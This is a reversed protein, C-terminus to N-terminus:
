LATGPAAARWCLRCMEFQGNVTLKSSIADVRYGYESEAPMRSSVSCNGPSDSAMMLARRRSRQSHMGKLARRLRTQRFTGSGVGVIFM